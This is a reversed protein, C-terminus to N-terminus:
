TLVYMQVLPAASGAHHDTVTGRVRKHSRCKHRSAGVFGIVSSPVEMERLRTPRGRRLSTEQKHALAARHPAADTNGAPLWSAGARPAECNGPMSRKVPRSATPSYRRPGQRRHPPYQSATFATWGKLSTAASRRFFTAM